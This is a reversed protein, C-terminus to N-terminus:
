LSRFCFSLQLSGRWAKTTVFCLESFDYVDRCNRKYCTFVHRWDYIDSCNGRTAHTYIGGTMSTAAIGRTAHIHRWGCSAAPDDFSPSLTTRGPLLVQRTGLLPRYEVESRKQYLAMMDHLFALGTPSRLQAVHFLNSALCDREPMLFM